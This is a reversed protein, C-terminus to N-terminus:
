AEAFFRDLADTVAAPEDDMVFHGWGARVVPALGPDVTRSCRRASTM